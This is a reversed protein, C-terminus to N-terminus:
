TSSNKEELAIQINIAEELLRENEEIRSKAQELELVSQEM